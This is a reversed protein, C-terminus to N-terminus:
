PLYSTWRRSDALPLGPFSATYNYDSGSPSLVLFVLLTCELGCRFPQSGLTYIRTRFCFAPIRARTTLCLSHIGEKESTQNQEPGWCTPHHGGMAAPGNTKGLGGICISIDDPFMWVCVCVCVWFYYKVLYRPVRHSLCTSM